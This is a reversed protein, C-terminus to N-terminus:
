GLLPENQSDVRSQGIARHRRPQRAAERQSASSFTKVAGGEREGNERRREGPACDSGRKATTVGRIVFQRWSFQTSPQMIAASCNQHEPETAACSLNIGSMKLTPRETFSMSTEQRSRVVQLDDVEEALQKPLRRKAHDSGSSWNRSAGKRRPTEGVRAISRSWRSRSSEKEGSEHSRFVDDTKPFRPASM